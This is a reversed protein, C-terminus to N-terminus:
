GRHIDSVTDEKAAVVAGIEIRTVQDWLEAIFFSRSRITYTVTCAPHLAGAAVALHRFKYMM